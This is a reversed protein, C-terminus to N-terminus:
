SGVEMKRALSLFTLLCVLLLLRCQRQQRHWTSVMVLRQSTLPCCPTPLCAAVQVPGVIWCKINSQVWCRVWGMDSPSGGTKSVGLVQHHIARVLGVFLCLRSCYDSFLMIVNVVRM